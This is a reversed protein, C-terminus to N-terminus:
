LKSLLASPAWSLPCQSPSQIPDGFPCQHFSVTFVESLSRVVPFEPLTIISDVNNLPQSSDVAFGIINAQATHLMKPIPSALYTGLRAQEFSDYTVDTSQQPQPRDLNSSVAQSQELKNSVIFAQSGARPRHPAREARVRHPRCPTQARVPTLAAAPLRHALMYDTASINGTRMCLQSCVQVNGTRIGATQSAARHQHPQLPVHSGHPGTAQAGAPQRRAQPQRHTPRPRAAGGVSPAASASPSNTARSSVLFVCFLVFFM